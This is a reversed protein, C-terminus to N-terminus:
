VTQKRNRNAIITGQTKFTFELYNSFVLFHQFFPLILYTIGIKLM